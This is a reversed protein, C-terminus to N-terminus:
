AAVLDSLELGDAGSWAWQTLGFGNLLGSESKYGRVTKYRIKSRGIARETVNNTRPVDGRRRHCLLARWKNSLEVCLRRLTQDEDDRVLRELRLLEVDGNPPLERLLRWIRAKIWDRGEIKGLRNWAWKLVHAICIQHDLGLREAVPKYTNLDDTVIAEVGFEDACEGLWDMFVDSDQEVLVDLGLVQGTQADTVLGVVRKKGKVRVYTEDAGVVRVRGRAQEALSRRANEGAEQVDRWVSAHSLSEGVAALADSASRLSMGLAWLLAAWGRMRQSQGSRDIGRPYHRFTRGCSQCLCRHVTVTQVRLDKVPKEASGHKILIGGGCRPCATPRDDPVTKVQAPVFRIRKM